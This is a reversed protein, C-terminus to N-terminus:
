SVQRGAATTAQRLKHLLGGILEEQKEVLKRFDRTVTRHEEVLKEKLAEGLLDVLFEREEATLTLQSEAMTEEKPDQTPAIAVGSLQITGDRNAKPLRPLAPVPTKPRLPM